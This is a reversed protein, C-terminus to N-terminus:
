DNPILPWNGSGDVPSGDSWNIKDPEVALRWKKGHTDTFVGSDWEGQTPNENTLYDGSFYSMTKPANMYTHQYCPMVIIGQICCVPM